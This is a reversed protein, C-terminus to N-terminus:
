GFLRQSVGSPGDRRAGRKTHQTRSLAVGSGRRCGGVVVQAVKAIGAADTVAEGLIGDGVGDTEYNELLGLVMQPNSVNVLSRVFRLRV